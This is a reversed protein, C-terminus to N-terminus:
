RTRPLRDRVLDDLAAIAGRTLTPHTMARGIADVTYEDRYHAVFALGVLKGARAELLLQELEAITEKCAVARAQKAPQMPERQPRTFALVLGAPKGSKVEMQAGKGQRFTQM